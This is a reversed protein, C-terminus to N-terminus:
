IMTAPVGSYTARYVPTGAVIIQARTATELAAILAPATARGLLADAPLTALDVLETVAGRAALRALAYEVLMRSKSSSSPSGSIGVAALGHTADSVVAVGQRRGPLTADNHRRSAVPGRGGKGQPERRAGEHEYGRVEDRERADQEEAPAHERGQQEEPELVHHHTREVDQAHEDCLRLDAGHPCRLQEHDREEREVVPHENGYVSHEHERQEPSSKHASSEERRRGEPVRNLCGPDGRCGPSEHQAVRYREPEVVDPGPLVLRRQNRRQHETGVARTITSCTTIRPPPKRTAVSPEGSMGSARSTTRFVPQVQEPM